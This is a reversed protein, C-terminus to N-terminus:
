QTLSFAYATLNTASVTGFGTVTVTCGGTCTGVVTSAAGLSTHERDEAADAGLAASGLPRWLWLPNRAHQAEDAAAPLGFAGSFTSLGRM